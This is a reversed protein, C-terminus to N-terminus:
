LNLFGGSVLIKPNFIIVHRPFLPYIIARVYRKGRNTIYPSYFSKTTKATKNAGNNQVTAMHETYIYFYNSTTLGKKRQKTM